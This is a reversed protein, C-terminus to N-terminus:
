VQVEKDSAQRDLKHPECLYAKGATTERSSSARRRLPVRTGAANAAAQAQWCDDCDRQGGFSAYRVQGRELPAKVARRVVPPAAPRDTAAGTFLDLQGNM